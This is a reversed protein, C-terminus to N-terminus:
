WKFPEPDETNYKQNYKDEDMLFLMIGEIFGIVGPIFTWIFAIFVIGWGWSGHYFKHIGLAGGVLAMVAAYNKLRISERNFWVTKQFKNGSLNVKSKKADLSVGCKVCIIQEENTESGCNPCHNTKIDPPLGCKTCAVAQADVENGCNRCYM